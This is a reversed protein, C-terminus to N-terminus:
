QTRENHSCGIYILHRRWAVEGPGIDQNCLPCHYHPGEADKKQEVHKGKKMHETYDSKLYYMQCEECFDYARESSQCESKLHDTLRSIEIVNACSRCSTLMPCERALHMDLKDLNSFHRNSRNCFNCATQGTTSDEKNKGQRGKKPDNYKGKLENIVDGDPDKGLHQNFRRFLSEVVFYRM